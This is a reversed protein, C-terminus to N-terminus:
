VTQGTQIVMAGLDHQLWDPSRNFSFPLRCIYIKISMELKSNNKSKKFWCLVLTVVFASAIASMLVVLILSAKEGAPVPFITFPQSLVTFKAGSFEFCDSHTPFTLVSTECSFCWSVAKWCNYHELFHM